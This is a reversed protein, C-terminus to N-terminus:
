AGPDDKQVKEPAQHVKDPMKLGKDVVERVKRELEKDVVAKDESEGSTARYNGAGGRGSLIGWTQQKM